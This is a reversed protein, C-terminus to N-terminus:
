VETEGLISANGKCSLDYFQMSNRPLKIATTVSVIFVLDLSTRAARPFLSSALLVKHGVNNCSKSRHSVM